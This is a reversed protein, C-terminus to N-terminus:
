EYNNNDASLIYTDLGNAGNPQLTLTYVTGGPTPSPTSTPTSTVPATPTPTFTVTPTPTLTSPSTPSPTPSATNTATPSATPTPTPSPAGQKVELHGGVFLTTEGGTGSLSNIVSKVRRGDGDYTIQAITAGDKKVEVVRNDADYLLQYQGDNAINRNTATEDGNPPPTM